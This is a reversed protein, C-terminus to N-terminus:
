KTLSRSGSQRATHLSWRSARPRPHSHRLDFTLFMIPSVCENAEGEEGGKTGLFFASFFRADHQPRSPQPTMRGQVLGKGSVAPVDAKSFFSFFFFSVRLPLTDHRRPCPGMKGM